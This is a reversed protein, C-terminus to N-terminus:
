IGKNIYAAVSSVQDLLEQKESDFYIMAPTFGVVINADINKDYFVRGVYDMVGKKIDPIMAKTAEAGCTIILSPKLLDIEQKLMDSYLTLEKPDTIGSTKYKKILSTVYIDSKTIGANDLSYTLYDWSTGVGQSGKEEEKNSCSAMVVMIKAKSGVFPRIVPNGISDDFSEYLENLKKLNAKDRQLSHFTEVYDIIIGPLLEYQAKRRSKDTAPVETDDVSCYAGVAKLNEQVRKNVRTKNVNKIFDEVSAFKGGVAIRAMLIAKSASDAVNLIRDFPTYITKSDHIVFKDTSFNIDPPLIDIGNEKADQIIPLAKQTDSSTLSAAYFALPYHAKCYAAQYSLLSYSKAHSANFCYAAFSEMDEWLQQAEDRSLGSSIKKYSAIKSM